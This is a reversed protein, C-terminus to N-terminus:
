KRSPRVAHKEAVRASCIRRSSGCGARPALRLPTSWGSREKSPFGTLTSRAQRASGSCPHADTLGCLRWLLPLTAYWTKFRPRPRHGMSPSARPTVEQSTSRSRSAVTSDTRKSRVEQRLSSSPASPLQCTRSQSPAPCSSGRRETEWRPRSCALCQTQYVNMRWPWPPQHCNFRRAPLPCCPTPACRRPLTESHATCLTCDVLLQTVCGGYGSNQTDRTAQTVVADNFDWGPLDFLAAAMVADDPLLPHM